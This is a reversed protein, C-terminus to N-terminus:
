CLRSDGRASASQRHKRRRKEERRLSSESSLSQSSSCTGHRSTVAFSHAVCCARQRERRAPFPLSIERVIAEELPWASSPSLQLPGVADVGFHLSRLPVSPRAFCSIANRVCRFLHSARLVILHSVPSDGRVFQLQGPQELMPACTECVTRTDAHMLLLPVPMSCALQDVVDMGGDQQGVSEPDGDTPITSVSVLDLQVIPTGMIAASRRRRRRERRRRRKRKAGRASGGDSHAWRACSVSGRRATTFTQVFESARLLTRLERTFPPRQQYLCLWSCRLVRELHAHCRRLLACSM